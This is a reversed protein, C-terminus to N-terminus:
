WGSAFNFATIVARFTFGTALALFPLLVSVISVGIIINLTSILFGKFTRPHKEAVIAKKLTELEKLQEANM